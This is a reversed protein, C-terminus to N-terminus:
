HCCSVLSVDDFAAGKTQTYQQDSFFSCDVRFAQEPVVRRERV